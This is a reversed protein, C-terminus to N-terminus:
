TLIFLLLSHHLLRSKKNNRTSHQLRSWVLTFNDCSVWKKRISYYYVNDCEYYSCNVKFARVVRGCGAHELIEVEVVWADTNNEMYYFYHNDPSRYVELTFMITYVIQMPDDLVERYGMRHCWELDRDIVGAEITEVTEKDEFIEMFIGSPDQTMCDVVCEVWSGGVPPATIILTFIVGGVKVTLSAAGYGIYEKM